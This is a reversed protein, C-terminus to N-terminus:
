DTGDKAERMDAGCNPCFNPEIPNYEGYWFVRMCVTCEKGGEAYDIWRGRRVPVADVLPEKAVIDIARDIGKQVGLGFLDDTVVQSSLHKIVNSASILMDGM